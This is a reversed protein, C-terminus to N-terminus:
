DFTNQVGKSCDMTAIFKIPLHGNESIESKIMASFTTPKLKESKIQLLVFIVSITFSAFFLM